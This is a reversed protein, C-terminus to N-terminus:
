TADAHIKTNIIIIKPINLKLSSFAIEKFIIITVPRIGNLRQKM